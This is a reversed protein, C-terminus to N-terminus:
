SELSVSKSDLGFGPPERVAVVVFVVVRTEHFVFVPSVVVRAPKSVTGGAESGTRVRSLGRNQVTLHGFIVHGTHNRVEVNQRAHQTVARARAATVTSPMVRTATGVRQELRAHRPQFLAAPAIQEVLEQTQVGVRNRRRQFRLKQPAYV